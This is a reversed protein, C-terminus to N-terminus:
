LGAPLEAYCNDKRKAADVRSERLKNLDVTGILVTANEGGKVQLIDKYYSHAPAVIRSDGYMSMNAQICYCYMDRSLSEMINSYYKVDRNWEIGYIVEVNGIYEARDHVATLEYCCYTAFRFGNWKFLANSASLPITLGRRTICREEDPAFYKKQRFFPISYRVKNIEFPIMMCTLNWVRGNAVIHEIGCIILMQKSASKNSLLKLYQLPVYAEPMVLVHANNRIALNTLETIEKARASKSGAKGDLIDIIDEKDMRVNAVATRVLSEKGKGITICNNDDYAFGAVSKLLNKKIGPFNSKYEKKVYEIYRDPTELVDKGVIIQEILYSFGIEFPSIVYPLYKYDDYNNNISKKDLLASLDTLNCTEGSDDFDYINMVLKMTVPLVGKNNMRSYIYNKRLKSLGRFRYRGIKSMSDFIEILNKTIVQINKGWVLSLSRGLCAWYYMILSEKVGYIKRKPKLYAYEGCKYTDEDTHKLAEIIRATFGIIEELRSSVVYYNLISEWLLYNSILEKGDLIQSIGDIFEEIQEEDTFASMLVSKGINKSLSYKDLTVSKIGRIKNVTDDRDLKYLKSNFDSAYEEPIFNFESTNQQIDRKIRLLLEKSGNSDLFFFRFKEKGFSLYKENFLLYDDDSQKLIGNSLLEQIIVESVIQSGKTHIDSVIESEEDVAKIWMIDDVYRGYYMTGPICKFTNDLQSLYINALISSPHFGIPLFIHGLGCIESYKEIIRFVTNNIRKNVVDLKEAHTLENFLCMSFDVNYYYRTLDLMTIIVSQENEFCEKAKELGKNRWTEYQEFYPKFLNPSSTMEDESFVLKERLRNGYCTEPLCKDISYGISVVWLIGVLFGEIDMDIFNNFTNIVTQNAQINSIVLPSEKGEGINEKYNINKPFTLVRISSLISAEVKEWKRVSMLNTYFEDLKDDIDEKEYDAIKARICALTKDYYVCGKLKRYAEKIFSRKM